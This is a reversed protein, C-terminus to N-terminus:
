CLTQKASLWLPAAHAFSYVRTMRMIIGAHQVSRNMRKATVHLDPLDKPVKHSQKGSPWPACVYVCCSFTFNICIWKLTLTDNRPVFFPCTMARLCRQSLASILEKPRAGASGPPPFFIYFYGPKWEAARISHWQPPTEILSFSLRILTHSLPPYVCCLRSQWLPAWHAGRWAGAERESQILYYSFM